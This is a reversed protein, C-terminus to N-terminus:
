LVTYFNLVPGSLFFPFAYFSSINDYTFNSSFLSEICMLVVDRKRKQKYALDLLIFSWTFAACLYFCLKKNRQHSQMCPLFVLWQYLCFVRCFWRRCSSTAWSHEALSLSLSLPLPTPHPQHPAIVTVALQGFGLFCSPRACFGLWKGACLQEM